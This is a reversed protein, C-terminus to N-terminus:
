KHERRLSATFCFLHGGNGRAHMRHCGLSPTQHRNRNPPPISQRQKQFLAHTPPPPPTRLTKYDSYDANFIDAVACFLRRSWGGVNVTVCGYQDPFLAMCAYRYKLTLGLSFTVFVKTGENKKIFIVIFLTRTILAAVWRRGASGMEPVWTRQSPEHHGSSKNQRWQFVRRM